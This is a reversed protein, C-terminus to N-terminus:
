QMVVNGIQNNSPTKLVEEGDDAMVMSAMSNYEFSEGRINYQDDQLSNLLENLGMELEEIKQLVQSSHTRFARCNHEFNTQIKAFMENIQQNIQEPSYLRDEPLLHSDKGSSEKLVTLDPDLMRQNNYIPTAPAEEIPM